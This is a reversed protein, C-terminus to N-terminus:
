GGFSRRQTQGGGTLRLAAAPWSEPREREEGGGTLADKPDGQVGRGGAGDAQAALQGFRRRASGGSGDNAEFLPPLLSWGTQM